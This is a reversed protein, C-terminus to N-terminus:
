HCSGGCSGCGGDGEPTSLPIVPEVSFGMYSLDIKVGGIQALLSEEVCFSFGGQEEVHDRERPEDLALM